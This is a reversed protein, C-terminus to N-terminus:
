YRTVIPDSDFKYNIGVRLIHEHLESSFGRNETQNVNSQPFIFNPAIVSGSTSGLDVYLYEVKATWNGFLHAETGAGVTWGAKTEGFRAATTVGTTTPVTNVTEDTIVRGYALGGTAYYLLPGGTWGVRGRLTGFWDLRQTLTTGVAGSQGGGSDTIFFCNLCVIDKQGSGQFDTEIGFVWNRNVQWNYGIQGGGIAGLPSLTFKEVDLNTLATHAVNDILTFPTTTPDRGIGIGVNGGAYFGTWNYAVPQAPPAKRFMGGADAVAAAYVPDGFKYNVGFRIIHDHFASILHHPESISATFNAPFDSAGVNGLDVYLYEIKATWNGFLQTEAGFGATWGSKTESTHAAAQVSQGFNFDTLTADTDVRGFAFGGTGYFLAPGNTWGIRGRATGFWDLKQTVTLNRSFGFVSPTVCQFVCATEKESSGQIDAELGFVWQPAAQWNFGIQGGGVAGFPSLKFTDSNVESSGNTFDARRTTPSRGVSLGANPGVYFGTWNAGVPAIVPRTVAPATAYANAPISVPATRIPEGATSM